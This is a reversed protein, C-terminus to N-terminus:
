MGLALLRLCRLSSVTLVVTSTIKTFHQGLGSKLVCLVKEPQADKRAVEEADPACHRVHLALRVVAPRRDDERQVADKPCQGEAQEDPQTHRVVSADGTSHEGPVAELGERPHGVGDVQRVGPDEVDDEAGTALQDVQARAGHRQVEGTHDDGSENDTEEEIDDELRGYNM